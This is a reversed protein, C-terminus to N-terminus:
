RLIKPNQCVMELKPRDKMGLRDWDYWHDPWRNRVEEELDVLAGTQRHIGLMVPTSGRLGLCPHHQNVFGIIEALIAREAVLDTFALHFTRLPQMRTTRIQPDHIIYLFKGWDYAKTIEVGCGTSPILDIFTIHRAQAIRQIYTQYVRAPSASLDGDPAFPTTIPDFLDIGNAAMAAM